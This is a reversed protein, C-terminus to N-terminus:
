EKTVSYLRHHGAPHPVFGSVNDRLGNVETTIYLFVWPAQEAIIEQAELYADLREDQDITTRGLTLLEDVRENGWFTRNPSGFNDSHFLGYLGYDADATVTVWGLIFMDHNGASTEALYTGWELVQVEVDIGIEGLQAQAIEAIQVRLPNDNTWLTTSFGDDYGAEALLERALEPDYEYAELDLNAGFVQASIPSTAPVAQGEFIVEVITNVDIAHNIAQRVLVNDFPEKQANFGIYATSLTEVSELQVEPDDALRQADTPELAYAIDVGGTELEIARVTGEPIPRFIVQEPMVEGGYWNDSRELVLQSSTDWNVFSFPGTGVVVSTGYDEGAETVAEENLISTATHSFHNLAPAFPYATTVRVTMDDIAEVGEVFGLLFSAPAATEPDLMRNFTFAVDAAELPEGNHFTVGERLTFEWVTPEVQEWSAALGPVLSLDENQVVLTDYVQRMIRASPQDNTKHPDLIVADAGQAVTITQAAAGSLLAAALLTIGFRLMSKM